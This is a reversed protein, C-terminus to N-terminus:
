YGPGQEAQIRDYRITMKKDDKDPKRKSGLYQVSAISREKKKKGEGV